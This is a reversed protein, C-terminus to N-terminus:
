DDDFVNSGSREIEVIGDETLIHSIRNYLVEGDEHDKVVISLGWTRNYWIYYVQHNENTIRAIFVDVLDHVGEAIRVFTFEEIRGVDLLELILTALGVGSEGPPGSERFGVERMTELFKVANNRRINNMQELEEPLISERLLEYQEKTLTSPERENPLILSEYIAEGLEHGKRVSVLGWTRHYWIYYVEHSENTIRATFTGTRDHIDEERVRVITFEEIKGIDLQELIGAACSVGSEGPPGDRFGVERMAELFMVANSREINNMQEFEEPLISERLLEYQKETLTLTVYPTDNSLVFIGVTVASIILVCILGLLIIRKSKMVM